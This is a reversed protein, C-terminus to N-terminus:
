EITISLRGRQSSQFKVLKEITAATFVHGEPLILIHSETLLQYKLVMGPKLAHVPITDEVHKTPIIDKHELLVELVTPNFRTGKFKNLESLAERMDMKHGTIRGLSFRWFDRAIALVQAGIPIQQGALKNHGTGNFYEFQNTIIEVVGHLHSAPSLILEAMKTQDIFEQQQNFNLESFPRSYVATDLGLLGIECLLGALKIDTIQEQSLKLELAVKTALESVCHAFGGDLHPNIGILNYLVKHTEFTNKEIRKLAIRIQKTRLQVKEDLSQNLLKLQKNQKSILHTLRHNEEKLSVLNLGEDISAILEDNDWPKQLYRHIKGKNVAEIVSAMDAFGTLLIRYCDPMASAIKELLQAGSMAPMKMDSIILHIKETKILEIAKAGSDALLVKYPQKHLLRKMSSLINAEDDVCLVTMNAKSPQLVDAMELEWYM